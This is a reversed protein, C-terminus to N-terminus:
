SSAARRPDVDGPSYNAAAPRLSAPGRPPSAGAATLRHPKSRLLEAVDDVKDELLNLKRALGQIDSVARRNVDYDFEGRLRDKADQLNQSM